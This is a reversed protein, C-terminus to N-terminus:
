PSVETRGATAPTSGDAAGPPPDVGPLAPAAIVTRRIVGTLGILRLVMRRMDEGDDDRTAITIEASDSSGDPYFTIPFFGFGAGFDPTAENGLNASAPTVPDHALDDAQPTSAAALAPDTPTMTLPRVNEISIAALIAEVYPTAEAFPQFWDPQGLPDPEWDVALNGLPVLMGEGVDEEFSIRVRHGTAAAQARAYRLLAEFQNAGEELRAGRQFSAFNFAVAGLLLGILAVALLLEVLSFGAAQERGTRRPLRTIGSWAKM